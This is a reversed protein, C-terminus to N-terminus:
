CVSADDQAPGAFSSESVAAETDYWESESELTTAVKQGKKAGLETIMARATERQAENTYWIASKYQEKSSRFPDHEKFFKKLIDAYSVVTPDFWIKIGETHGDGACVTNYNPNKRMGGTYGVRTKLVGPVQVAAYYSANYTSPCYYYYYYYYYYYNNYYNYYYYYYYTCPLM